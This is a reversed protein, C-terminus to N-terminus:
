LDRVIVQMVKTQSRGELKEVEAKWYKLSQRIERLDARRLRRTGVQYEQGTAVVKEAEIWIDVMDRAAKLAEANTNRNM